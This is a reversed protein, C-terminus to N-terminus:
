LLYVASKIEQGLVAEKGPNGDRHIVGNDVWFRSIVNPDEM